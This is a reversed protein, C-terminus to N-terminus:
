GELLELEAESPTFYGLRIAREIAEKPVNFVSVAMVSHRCNYGGATTFITNENTGAMEGAWEGSQPWEFGETKEGKGWDQIEKYHFYQNHREGCFPRTTKIESGSWKFWEAEMEEAVASAYSRDGLAFADHAIQKSYQMIKGNLEDNGTTIEQLRDLTDRYSAGNVVAQEIATKIPEIFDRDPSIEVLLEVARSQASRMVQKGLESDTFGPFAKKFYSDNFTVQNNFEGAFETVAETYDSRELAERLLVDVEAALSVNRKNVIFHGEADREFDGLLALVDKLLERQVKQMRTLLADPVSALRANKAQLLQELTM